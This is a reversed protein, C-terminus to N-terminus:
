DAMSWVSTKSGFGQEKVALTDLWHESLGLEKQLWGADKQRGASGDSQDLPARLVAHHLQRLLQNYKLSAKQASRGTTDGWIISIKMRLFYM